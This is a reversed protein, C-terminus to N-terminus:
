APRVDGKISVREAIRTHPFYDWIAYHQVCRNDWFVLTDKSWKVRCHLRPNEAIHRYLLSLIGESERLSLGKIHSTFAANVFLVERNTQPHRIVVPHEALPYHTDAKPRIGYLALDQLGDHVATLERLMGKVPAALTDFALYMNAFATDGGVPPLEKMLLMSGLPPITECTVDSHWVTGNAHNSDADTRVDYIEPDGALGMTKKLPHVHLEGFHRGFTKHENASIAQDRFILVQWDLFARKVEAIQVDDLELSLDLGSVEAGMHPTLPKVSLSQYDDTM